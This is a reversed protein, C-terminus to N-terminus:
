ATPDLTRIVDLCIKQLVDSSVLAPIMQRPQGSQKEYRVLRLGSNAELMVEFYRISKAERQPPTSRIQVSRTAEDVEQVALPEVLYHIRTALRTGLETLEAASRSILSTATVSMETLECGLRNRDTCHVRVEGGAWVILLPGAIASASSALAQQVQDRINSELAM